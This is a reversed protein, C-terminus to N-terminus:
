LLVNERLKENPIEGTFIYKKGEYEKVGKRVDEWEADQINFVCFKQLDEPLKAFKLNAVNGLDNSIMNAVGRKGAETWPGLLNIKFFLNMMKSMRGPIDDSVNFRSTIDGIQTDFGVGLYGSVERVDKKAVGDYFSKFADHWADIMSRGQYIRTSAVYGPDTFAALWSAGLKAM